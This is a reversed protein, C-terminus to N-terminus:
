DTNPAGVGDKHNWSRWTKGDYMSGGGETGFWVRDQKDVDLGYVGENILEKVYTTFKMTKLDVRNAGAWTGIWLDGNRQSAFTYIWYDALGHMPFYTKWTGDRYRSGGPTPASGNTVKRTLSSVACMNTRWGATAPLPTACM